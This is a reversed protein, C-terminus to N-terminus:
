DPPQMLFHLYRAFVNNRRSVNVLKQRDMNTIQHFMASISFQVPPSITPLKQTRHIINTRLSWAIVNIYSNSDTHKVLTGPCLKQLLSEIFFTNM